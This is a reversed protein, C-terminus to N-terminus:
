QPIDDSCCLVAALMDQLQHKRLSTCHTYRMTIIHMSHLANNHVRLVSLLMAAPPYVSTCYACRMRTHM